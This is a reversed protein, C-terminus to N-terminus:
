RASHNLRPRSPGRRRSSGATRRSRAPADRWGPAGVGAYPPWSMAKDDTANGHAAGHEEDLQMIRPDEEPHVGADDHAQHQADRRGGHRRRGEHRRSALAGPRTVRVAPGCRLSATAWSVGCSRCRRSPSMRGATPRPRGAVFIDLVDTALGHLVHQQRAGPAIEAVLDRHDHEVVPLAGPAHDVADGHDRRVLAITAQRAQAEEM